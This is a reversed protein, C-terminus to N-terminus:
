SAKLRSPPPGLTSWIFSKFRSFDFDSVVVTKCVVFCLEFTKKRFALLNLGFLFQKPQIEFHFRSSCNICVLVELYRADPHPGPSKSSNLKVETEPHPKCM